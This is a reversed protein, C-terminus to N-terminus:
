NSIVELYFTPSTGEVKSWVTRFWTPLSFILFPSVLYSSIVKNERIGPKNDCKKKKKKTKKLVNNKFFSM